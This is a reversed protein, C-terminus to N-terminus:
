SVTGKYIIISSSQKFLDSEVDDAVQKNVLHEEIRSKLQLMGHMM